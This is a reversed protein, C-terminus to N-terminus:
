IPTILVSRRSGDTIALAKAYLNQYIEETAHNRAAYGALWTSKWPTIKEVAVGAQMQM